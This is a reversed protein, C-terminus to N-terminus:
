MKDDKQINVRSFMAVTHLKPLIPRGVDLLNLVIRIWVLLFYSGYVCLAKVLAGYMREM